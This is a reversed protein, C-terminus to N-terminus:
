TSAEKGHTPGNDNGWVEGGLGQINATVGVFTPQMGILLELEVKRGINLPFPLVHASTLDVSPVYTVTFLLAKFTTCMAWLRAQVIVNAPGQPGFLAGFCVAAGCNVWIRRLSGFTGLSLLAGSSAANSPIVIPTRAQITRYHSEKKLLGPPGYPDPEVPDCDPEPPPLHLPRAVM